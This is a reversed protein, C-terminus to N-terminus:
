FSVSWLLKNASPLIGTGASGLCNKGNKTSRGAVDSDHMVLPNEANEGKTFLNKAFLNDVIQAKTLTM